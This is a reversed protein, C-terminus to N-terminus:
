ALCSISLRIKLADGGLADALQSSVDASQGAQRADLFQQAETRGIGPSKTVTTLMRQGSNGLADALAYHPQGAAAADTLADQLAWTDRWERFARSRQSTAFGQPNMRASIQSVIPNGTAAAGALPVVGGIAGGMAAGEAAGTLRGQGEGSLFGGTAGYAAGDGATALARSM